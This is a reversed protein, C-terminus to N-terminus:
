RTVTSRWYSRRRAIWRRKYSSSKAAWSRSETPSTIDRAAPSRVSKDVNKKETGMSTAWAVNNRTATTTISIRDGTNLRTTSTTTGTNATIATRKRLLTNGALQFSWRTEPRTAPTTSSATLPTRTTFA